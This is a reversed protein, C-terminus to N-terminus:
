RLLSEIASIAKASTEIRQHVGKVYTELAAPLTKSLTKLIKDRLASASKDTLRAMEGPGRPTLEWVTQMAAGLLVLRLEAAPLESQREDAGAWPSVLAQLPQSANKGMLGALASAWRVEADPLGAAKAAAVVQRGLALLERLDPPGPPQKWEEFLPYAFRLDVLDLVAHCWRIRTPALWAVLNRYYQCIENAYEPTRVGGVYFGSRGGSGAGDLNINIWHHWTSDCAVRGVGVLHGDYASVLGFCRPNVAPKGADTVYGGGSFGTAVVYPRSVTPSPYELKTIRGTFRYSHGLNAPEVCVGEHPHDPFNLIPKGDQRQMLPHPQYDHALPTALNEFYRVHIRQPHTDSQDNFTFVADDGPTLTDIRDATGGTPAPPAWDDVGATTSNFWSRMSRVRPIRGCLAAGLDEHDGTAFVGGGEDMFDAIRQLEADSLSLPSGAGEIGILWLQDYNTFNFAKHPAPPAADFRFGQIDAVGNDRNATTIQPVRYGPVWTKLVNNVVEHLGFGGTSFDLGDCVMLIRQPCVRWFAPWWPRIPTFPDINFPIKDLIDPPIRIPM